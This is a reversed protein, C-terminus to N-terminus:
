DAFYGISNGSSRLRIEESPLYIFYMEGEIGKEKKNKLFRAINIREDTKVPSVRSIRNGESDQGFNYEIIFGPILASPINNKERKIVLIKQDGYGVLFEELNIFGGNIKCHVYEIVRDKTM